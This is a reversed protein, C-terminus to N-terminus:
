YSIPALVMVQELKAWPAADIKRTPDFKKTAYRWNLQTLLADISIAAM